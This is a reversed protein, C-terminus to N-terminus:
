VSLSGTDPAPASPTTGGGDGGDRGHRWPCDKRDPSPAPTTTPPSQTTPPSDTQASALGMGLGATAGVAAVGVLLKRTISSM